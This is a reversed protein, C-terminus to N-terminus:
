LSDRMASCGVSYILFFINRSQKLDVSFNIFNFHPGYLGRWSSKPPIWNQVEGLFAFVLLFIAVFQKRSFSWFWGPFPRFFTWVKHLHPCQCVFFPNIKRLYLSFWGPFSRFISFHSLILKSYANLQLILDSYFSNHKKPAYKLLSRLSTIKENSLSLFSLYIKNM